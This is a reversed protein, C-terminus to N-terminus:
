PALRWFGANTVESVLEEQLASSTAQFVGGRNMFARCARRCGVPQHAVRVNPQGSRVVERMRSNPIAEEVPRGLVEDPRAIGFRRAHKDSIWVILAERDVILTGESAKEFAKFVSQM